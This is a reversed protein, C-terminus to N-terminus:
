RATISPTERSEAAPVPPTPVFAAPTAERRLSRHSVIARVSLRMTRLRTNVMTTGPAPPTYTGATELPPGSLGTRPELSPAVAAPQHRQGIAEPQAPPPRTRHGRRDVPRHTRSAEPLQRDSGPGRRPRRLARDRHPQARSPHLEAPPLARAEAATGCVNYQESLTGPRLDGLKSLQAKVRQIRRSLEAKTAMTARRPTHPRDCARMWMVM